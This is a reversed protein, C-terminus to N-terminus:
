TVHMHVAFLIYYNNVIPWGPAVRPHVCSYNNNNILTTHVNTILPHETMSVRRGHM